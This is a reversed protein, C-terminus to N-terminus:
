RPSPSQQPGQQGGGQGSQQLARVQNEAAEALKRAVNEKTLAIALDADADARGLLFDARKNDGKSLANKAIAMEEQALRLQLAARADTQAGIEQAARVVGETEALRQTPPPYSACGAFLALLAIPKLITTMM